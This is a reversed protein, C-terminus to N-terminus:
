GSVVRITLGGEDSGLAIEHKYLGQVKMIQVVADKADHLELETRREIIPSDKGITRERVKLKKVLGLNQRAQASSLDIGGDEDLFPEITGRGWNTMRLTAEADSMSLERMREDIAARIEPMQMLDYATRRARRESFGAEIAALPRNFHACYREVFRRRRDNWRFPKGKSAM